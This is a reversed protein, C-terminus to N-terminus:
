IFMRQLLSKKFLKAQELQNNILNIKNDLATLFEAIKQQEEQIPVSISLSKIDDASIATFTSGQEIGVWRPEFWLLFQYIFDKVIGSKCKIACVGRGICAQHNSIAAYGSPARVTLIVDGTECTKTISNTWFRPLTKRGIIDANGQILYLGDGNENYASSEPSQGMSVAIIEGLNKEEWDPYNSGDPKKFRIKGQPSITSGHSFIAQMVGKKYKEFGKKREELKNIKEDVAGLFDAIKEQENISPVTLKYPKLFEININKQAAESAIRDMRERQRVLTYNLFKNNASNNCIIGILSDPCAMSQQLIGTYGINAAITILITDKPFLKSVKLGEDNLSQTYNEIVGASKVVDGTQVFPIDGGYYRPDNRPRPSFRGRQISALDGLKKEQWEDTFEKFRLKPTNSTISM